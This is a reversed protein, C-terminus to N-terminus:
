EDLAEDPVAEDPTLNEMGFSRDEEVCAIRLQFWSYFELRGLQQAQLHEAHQGWQRIAERSQWYSVTIGLGTEDRVTEMGLFGPQQEALTIMQEAMLAYIDNGSLARQNTFICAYYPKPWNLTM